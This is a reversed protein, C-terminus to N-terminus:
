ATGITLGNTQRLIATTVNFAHAAECSDYVILPAEGAVRNGVAYGMLARAHREADDVGGLDAADERPLRTFLANLSPHPSPAALATAVM